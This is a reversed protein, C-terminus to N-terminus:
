IVSLTALAAKTSSPPMPPPQRPDEKLPTVDSTTLYFKLLAEKLAYQQPLYEPRDYKNDLETPDKAMDYLENVGDDGRYVLKMTANKVMVVRPSGVCKTYSAGSTWNAPSFPCNALEEVGRPYYLDRPNQYDGGGSHLPEIEGPYLFGAESFIFRGPDGKAKGDLIPNLDMGFVTFNLQAGAQAAITPLLDILMVPSDVVQGRAADQFLDPASRIVLPVRLLEDDLATGWKEVLNGDGAFDGHDSTYIITTRADAGDSRSQLANLLQGFATDVHDIMMLYTAHLRHWFSPDHDSLHTLNRFKPIGEWYDPKNPLGTPKLPLKDRVETWDYTSTGNNFFSFYGQEGYKFGKGHLGVYPPHAGFTPIFLMFPEPLKDRKLFDVADEWHPSWESVRKPFVEAALLDNKGFFAVHYNEEFLRSFLDPEWDQILHQQTRHGMTHLYRGTMMAVRSPSCQSNQANAGTFATGNEALRQLYPSRQVPHPYAKGAGVSEARITDPFYFLFNPRRRTVAPAGAAPLVALALAAAVAAVSLFRMEHASCLYAAFRQECAVTRFSNSGAVLLTARSM